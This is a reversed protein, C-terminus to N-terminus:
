VEVRYRYTQGGFTEYNKDLPYCDPLYVVVEGTERDEHAWFNSFQILVDDQPKRDEVVTVSEKILMLSKPDVEGIILPYRPHNGKPNEPCINGIWFTRGGSHRLLMSFSSPSFFKEGNSYTWPQPKTWHRGNDTSLSYWKYGPLEPKADNSGRMVLLLRGPFSAITPETLGRTSKLPDAVLRESVDWVLRNKEWRGILVAVDEYTYGGGPNYYAGDPGLPTSTIPYIIEGNDLIVQNVGCVICNKGIWVGEIPHEENFEKGQQIIPEERSFSRGGDESLGWRMTYHKMGDLADENPLIGQLIFFITKKAQPDVLAPAIGRHFAGTPLREYTKVEKSEPWTRGNDSSFRHFSVDCIDSRTEHGHISIMEVGTPKTYFARAMVWVGEKPAAVFLEKSKLRM